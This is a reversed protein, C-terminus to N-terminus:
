VVIVVAHFVGIAVILVVHDVVTGSSVASDVDNDSNDSNVCCMLIVLM